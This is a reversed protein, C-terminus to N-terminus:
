GVIFPGAADLVDEKSMPQDFAGSWGFIGRIHLVEAAHRAEVSHIRLATVLAPTGQLNPAQGKYAAVGLNEFTSSVIAFTSFNSFVDPYKGGATFDFRPKGKAAGGLAGLLTRVHEVEHRGIQSFVTRYRSPILGRTRLAREYFESELYELTLAFNLVDIVQYPLGQAFAQTSGLALVTPVSATAGLNLAAKAFLDRRSSLRKALDPDIHDLITSDPSM